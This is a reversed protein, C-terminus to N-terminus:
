ETGRLVYDKKTDSWIHVKGNVVLRDVPKHPKEFLELCRVIGTEEVNPVNIYGIKCGPLYKIKPKRFLSKLWKM